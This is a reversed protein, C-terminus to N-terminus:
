EESGGTGWEVGGLVSPNSGPAKRMRLPHSVAVGHARDGRGFCVCVGKGLRTGEGWDGSGVAGLGVGGASSPSRPTM